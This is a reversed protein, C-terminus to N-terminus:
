VHLLQAFSQSEIHAQCPTCCDSVHGLQPLSTAQNRWPTLSSNSISATSSVSAAPGNLEESRAFIKVKRWPPVHRLVTSTNCSVNFTRTFHKSCGVVASKDDDHYTTCDYGECHLARGSTNLLLNYFFNYNWSWLRYLWYTSKKNSKSQFNIIWIGM